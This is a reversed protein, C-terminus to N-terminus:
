RHLFPPLDRSAPSNVVVVAAIFASGPSRWAHFLGQADGPIMAEFAATVGEVLRSYHAPAATLRTRIWGARIRPAFESRALILVTSCPIWFPLLLLHM